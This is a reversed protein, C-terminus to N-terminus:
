VYGAPGTKVIVGKDNYNYSLTGGQSSVYYPGVANSAVFVAAGGTGSALTPGVGREWSAISAYQNDDRRAVHINMGRTFSSHMSLSEGIRNRIEIPDEETWFVANPNGVNVFILEPLSTSQAADVFCSSPGREPICLAVEVENRDEHVVCSCVRSVTRIDINSGIIMRSRVLHLAVCRLGNGCQEAESGDANFIRMHVGSDDISVILLGDAGDLDKCLESPSRTGFHLVFRNGAGHMQVDANCSSNNSDQLIM